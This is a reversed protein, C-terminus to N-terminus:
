LKIFNNNQISKKFYYKGIAMDFIAMGMPNFMIVQSNDYDSMENKILVDTISKTNDKQLGQTKHFFEIDTNERCVKDWDDVIIADKIYKYIKDTCDRLSVNM